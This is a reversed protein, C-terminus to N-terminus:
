QQALRLFDDHWSQLREVAHEKQEPTMRNLVKANLECGAAIWTRMRSRRPEQQPDAAEHFLDHLAAEAQAQSAHQSQLGDILELFLQQQRLREDYVVQANFPLAAIDTRLAQIQDDSLDGYFYELIKRTFKTAADVRDEPDKQLYDHRFDKNTKAEYKKLHAIQEPSLSLVVEAMAPMAHDVADFIMGQLEERRECALQPTMPNMADTEAQVLWQAYRPLQTRRHWAFWQAIRQHVLASQERNFDFADDLKWYLLTDANNYALRVVSCALLVASLGLILCWRWARTGGRRPGGIIPLRM